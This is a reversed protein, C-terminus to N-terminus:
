VHSSFDASVMAMTPCDELVLFNSWRMSYVFSYVLDLCLTPFIKEFICYLVWSSWVHPMDNLTHVTSWIGIWWIFSHWVCTASDRVDFGFSVNEQIVICPWSAWYTVLRDYDWSDSLLFSSVGDTQSSFRTGSWISSTNDAMLFIFLLSAALGALM